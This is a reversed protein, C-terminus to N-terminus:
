GAIRLRSVLEEVRERPLRVQDTLPVPMAHYAADEVAEAAELLAASPTQARIRDVIDYVEDKEFRVESVLPVPRANELVAILERALARVDEPGRDEAAPEVPRKAPERGEADLAELRSFAKMFPVALALAAAYFGVRSHILDNLLAGTSVWILMLTGLAV